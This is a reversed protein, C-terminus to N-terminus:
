DLVAEILERPSIEKKRIAAALEEAPLFCLDPSDM